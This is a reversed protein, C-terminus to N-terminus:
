KARELYTKLKGAFERLAKGRHSVENKEAETMQAFTKYAPPYVFIPDYGFGGYGMGGYAINGDCRGEATIYEGNPFVCVICCTFHAARSSGGRMSDLLLARRDADSLGPGGYRASYVGP